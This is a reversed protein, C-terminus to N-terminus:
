VAAIYQASGGRDSTFIIGSSNPFFYPETDIESSFTIQRASEGSNASILFINSLGSKSLAVALQSGDPSWLPVTIVRLFNAAITRSGSALDQSMFSRRMSEFSVYAIKQGNPYGSLLSLPPTLHPLLRHATVTLM